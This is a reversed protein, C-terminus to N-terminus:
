ANNEREKEAKIRQWFPPYQKDMPIRLMYALLCKGCFLFTHGDHYILQGDHPWCTKSSQEKVAVQKPYPTGRIAARQEWWTLPTSTEEQMIHGNGNEAVPEPETAPTDAEREQTNVEVTVNEGLLNQLEKATLEAAIHDVDEARYYQRKLGQPSYTRIGRDKVYRSLTNSSNIGLVQMARTSTYYGSIERM